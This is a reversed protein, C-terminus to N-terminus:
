QLYSLRCLSPLYPGDRHFHTAFGTCSPPQRVRDAASTPTLPGVLLPARHWSAFIEAPRPPGTTWIYNTSQRLRLPLKLPRRFRGLPIHSSCIIVARGVPM